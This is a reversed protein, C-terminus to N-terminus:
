HTVSEQSAPPSTWCFGVPRAGYIRLNEAYVARQAHRYFRYYIAGSLEAHGLVPAFVVWLNAALTLWFAAWAGQRAARPLRGAQALLGAVAAFLVGVVPQYLRPIWIGRLQWGPYPPAANNFLFLLAATLLVCVEAPGLLRDKGPLWRAVALVALFLLPLFLFNSYLYTNLSVGPLQALLAGWGHGDYPPLYSKLIAFYTETNSNRFPVAYIRDLAVNVLFPPVLQAVALVACAAWRRRWLLLLVAAVGFFPLLDYATFLVGLGLGALLAQRATELTEVRWLLVLCLLSAPVIAAYSYPLGGWYFWGPYTALLWLVAAPIRGEFRGEFRRRLAFWFVALSGASILVNTVLGGAGFGLVKMFPYAILFYLIRRLAVSFDWQDRPAGDLMLFSAKYHFHDINLLYKCPEWVFPHELTAGGPALTGTNVWLGLTLLLCAGALHLLERRRGTMATM